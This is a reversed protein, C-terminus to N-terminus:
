YAIKTELTIVGNSQAEDTFSAQDALLQASAYKLTVTTNAIVAAAVSVELKLQTDDDTELKGMDFTAAIAPTVTQGEDMAVAYSASAEIKVGMDAAVLLDTLTATLGFAADGTLALDIKADLDMTDNVVDESGISGALTATFADSVKVPVSLDAEILVLNSGSPDTMQGDFGVDVSAMGLDATVGFGFGVFNNYNGGAVYVNGDVTETDLAVKLSGAYNNAGGDWDVDSIVQAEIAIADADVHLLVGGNSAYDDNDTTITFDEDVTVAENFAFEPKSAVQIYATPALYIKAVVTPATVNLRTQFTDSDIAEEDDTPDAVIALEVGLDDGDSNKWNTADDLDITANSDFEIKFDNLQIEGYVGEGGKSDSGEVVLLTISSSNESVFGTSLPDNLNVGWTVTADGAIVPEGLEVASATFTVMLMLVILLTAKKM